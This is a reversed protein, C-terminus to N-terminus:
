VWATWPCSHSGGVHTLAPDTGTGGALWVRTFSTKSSPGPPTPLPPPPPPPSSHGVCRPSVREKAFKQSSGGPGCFQRRGPALSLPAPLDRAPAVTPCPGVAAAVATPKCRCELYPCPARVELSPVPTRRLSLSLPLSSLIQHSPSPPSLGWGGGWM